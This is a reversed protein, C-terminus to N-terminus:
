PSRLFYWSSTVTMTTERSPLIQFDDPVYTHHGASVIDADANIAHGGRSTLAESCTCVHEGLFFHRSEVAHRVSSTSWANRLATNESRLDNSTWIEAEACFCLGHIHGHTLSQPLSFVASFHFLPPDTHVWRCLLISTPKTGGDVANIPRLEGGTVIKGWRATTNYLTQKKRGQPLSFVKPSMRNKETM